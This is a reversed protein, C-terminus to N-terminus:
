PHEFRIEVRRSEQNNWEPQTQGHGRATIRAQPIGAKILDKRITDAREESLDHNDKASGVPDTYGVVIINQDPHDKAYTVAVKLIPLSDTKPQSADPAFFIFYNQAPHHFCATLLLLAAVSLIGAIRRSCSRFRGTRDFGSRDVLTMTQM